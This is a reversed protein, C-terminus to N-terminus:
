RIRDKDSHGVLEYFLTGLASIGQELSYVMLSPRGKEIQTDTIPKSKHLWISLAGGLARRDSANVVTGNINEVILSMAGANHSCVVPIGAMLAENVVAGFPEFESPLAFVSGICYWTALAAGECRGVFYVRDGWPLRGALRALSAREQGDGVIVLRFDPSQGAVDSFAEILRDVRKESVLRGVFLVVRKNLLENQRVLRKATDCAMEMVSRFQNEDQLIPVAASPCRAGFRSRYLYDSDRSVFVLGDVFKLTAARALGRMTGDRVISSPNDDTMVIHKFHRTSIAKAVLTAFTILSFESTMVIDPRTRYIKCLVQFLVTKAGDGAAGDGLFNYDSRLLAFLRTQDFKQNILNKRQFIVRLNCIKSLQNFLDVRYPALAPHFILVKPLM